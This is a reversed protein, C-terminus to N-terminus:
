DMMLGVTKYRKILDKDSVLRDSSIWDKVKQRTWYVEPAFYYNLHKLQFQMIEERLILQYNNPLLRLKSREIVYRFKRSSQGLPVVKKDKDDFWWNWIHNQYRLNCKGNEGIVNLYKYKSLSLNTNLNKLSFKVNQVVKKGTFEKIDDKSPLFLKDKDVKIKDSDLTTATALFTKLNAIPYDFKIPTDLKFSILLDRKPTIYYQNEGKTFCFQVTKASKEAVYLIHELIIRTKDSVKYKM